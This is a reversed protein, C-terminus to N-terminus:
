RQRRPPAATQRRAGNHWKFASSLPFTKEEHSGGGGGTLRGTLPHKSGVWPRAMLGKFHSRLTLETEGVKDAVYHSMQAEDRAEATRVHGGGGLEATGPGKKERERM